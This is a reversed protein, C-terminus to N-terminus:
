LEDIGGGGPTGPAPGAGPLNDAQLQDMAHRPAEGLRRGLENIEEKLEIMRLERGVSARNFQALEKNSAHLEEVKQRLAEEAQKRDTIDRGIGQLEQVKGSENLVAANDWSFWRIGAPTPHRTETQMHHPPSQIAKIMATVTPKDEPFVTPSFSKGLLEERTKGFTKCYADNVFTLHGDLDSRAILDSQTEVLSKFRAESANLAADAQKREILRWMGEMLLTLQEADSNDYDGQKNGVGAVLVIHQGAFVPVNMHRRVRVHGQPHGKKAPNPAAYDNTIVPRRQRVAEGWLGTETVVYQIPKDIIACEKMAQKSWAHMSLVTEDDNLFALYGIESQTIRVAEELAYDTLQQHTVDTMQNLKLLVQIRETHLHLIQEAQKRETIVELAICWHERGDLLLPEVGISMWVKSPAGNRELEMELEAGHMSGGKAILGEVGNRVKCLKCVKSYGCGRTDKSRHVCRLANGPRHQLIEAKDGGCMSIGALNVMVINTTEDIVLMAVPSSEFVADFNMELSVSHQRLEEELQKRVMAVSINAAIGEFHSIMEATFCGKRRDNLQLLGVIKMGSRIPILAISQFGAHICRNRPHLRPDQEPALDLFPLSDNTWASGGPTFLPNTLDAKGSLILGCTCELSPAGNEDLCVGGGPGRVTLTNETLLFDETFGNQVYYPFDDEKQLRIGVASFGTERQIAALVCNIADPLPLPENLFGLIEAALKQRSEARKRESVDHLFIIRGGLTGNKEYFPSDSLEYIRNEKGNPLNIEITKKSKQHSREGPPLLNTIVQELQKGVLEQVGLGLISQTAPNVEVIRDQYDLIMLGDAMGSLVAAQAIPKIDFLRWRFMGTALLIGSISFGLPTLDMNKFPNIRLVYLLNGVWPALIGIVVLISQWRFIKAPVLTLRFTIVTAALLVLYSYVWYVWFMPGYTKDSFVLGNEQYPIYRAWILGHNGNTWALVLTTLPIVALWALRKINLKQNSGSHYLVYGLVMLPVSVVGIYEIKAWLIKHTLDQDVLGMLAAVIWETIGSLLLILPITESNKRRLLLVYVVIFMCIMAAALM